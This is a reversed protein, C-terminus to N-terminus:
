AKDERTTRFQGMAVALWYAAQYQPWAAFEPDGARHQVREYLTRVRDAVPSGPQEIIANLLGSFAERDGRTIIEDIGALSGLPDGSLRVSELKGAWGAAAIKNMDEITSSPERVSALEIVDAVDLLAGTLADSRAQRTDVRMYEYKPSCYATTGSAVALTKIAWRWRDWHPRDPWRDRHPWDDPRDLPHRGAEIDDLMQGLVVLARAADPSPEGLEATLVALAPRARAAARQLDNM